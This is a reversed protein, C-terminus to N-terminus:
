RPVSKRRGGMKANGIYLRGGSGIIKVAEDIAPLYLEGDVCNGAVPLTALPLGLPDLTALMVKFQPLDPRHDKSHGLRFLETDETDHHVSVTTTDLRVTDEPLHYVRILRQGLSHEIPRWNSDKSLAYLVSALRDDTFDKSDVEVPLLRNLTQTHDEAWQEVECMRHDSLSLIYTLWSGTLWGLSLGHRNGHRHVVTDIIQAIGTQEVTKILLPIDDIRETEVSVPEEEAAAEVSGAAVCSSKPLVTSCDTGM